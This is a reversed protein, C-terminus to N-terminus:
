IFVYENLVIEEATNKHNNMLKAWELPNLEKSKESLREDNEIYNEMLEKYYNECSRSVLLLHHTLKNTMLLTEYLAQKNQVIFHLRLMGYRGIRGYDEDKKKKKDPLLYDGKRTYTVKM